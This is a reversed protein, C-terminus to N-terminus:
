EQLQALAQHMQELGELHNVTITPDKQLRELHSTLETVLRIRRDKRSRLKDVMVAFADGLEQLQDNERLSIDMELQGDGIQDCLAEFRYLPGAIKHSAYMVVFVTLSGAVLLAVLNGILISVGLHDLANIINTHATQAQAQLDGGTIWYILLASCGGSLLILLFVGLIFRGQFSKKIFVTHRKSVNKSM